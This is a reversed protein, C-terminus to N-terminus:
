GNPSIHLFYHGPLDFLDVAYIIVRQLEGVRVVDRNKILYNRRFDRMLALREAPRGFEPELHQGHFPDMVMVYALRGRVPHPHFLDLHDPVVALDVAACDVVQNRQLDYAPVIRRSRQHVTDLVSLDRGFLQPEGLSVGHFIPFLEGPREELGGGFELLVVHIEGIGFSLLHGAEAVGLVIFYLGGNQLDVADDGFLGLFTPEDVAVSLLLETVVLLAPEHDQVGEAGQVLVAPPIRLLVPLAFHCLQRLLEYALVVALGSVM